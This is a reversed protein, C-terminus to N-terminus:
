AGAVAECAELIASALSMGELVMRSQLGAWAAAAVAVPMSRLPLPLRGMIPRSKGSPTLRDIGAAVADAKFVFSALAEAVFTATLTPHATVVAAIVAARLNAKRSLDNVVPLIAERFALERADADLADILVSRVASKTVLKNQASQQGAHGAAAILARLSPAVPAPSKARPM